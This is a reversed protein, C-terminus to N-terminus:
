RLDIQRKQNLPIHRLLVQTSTAGEVKWQADVRGGIEVVLPEADRALFVYRKGKNEMRGLYTLGPDPAIPPAPPPPAIVVPPAIAEPPPAPQAIPSQPPTPLTWGPDASRVWPAESVTAVDPRQTRRALQVPVGSMEAVDRDMSPPKLLAIGTMSATCLLLLQVPKSLRAAM